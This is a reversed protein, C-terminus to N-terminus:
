RVLLQFTRIVTLFIILLDKVTKIELRSLKEKYAKGVGKIEEVKSNLSIM